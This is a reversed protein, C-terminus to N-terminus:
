AKQPTAFLTNLESESFPCPERRAKAMDFQALARKVSAEDFCKFVADKIVDLKEADKATFFGTAAYSTAPAPAIGHYYYSWVLFKMCTDPTILIEDM